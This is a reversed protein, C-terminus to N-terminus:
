QQLTADDVDDGVGVDMRADSGMREKMFDEQFTM